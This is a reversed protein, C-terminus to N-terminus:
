GTIMGAAVTHNTSEDILIFAGSARNERYRDIALPTQAALRVRGIDNLDLGDAPSELATNVDLRSEVSRFVVKATRTTHKILYKRTRDLPASDMWCVIAELERAVRPPAAVAVIMDGRSIDLDDALVLTVSQPARAV